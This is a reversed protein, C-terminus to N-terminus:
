LAKIASNRARCLVENRNFLLHLKGCIKQLPRSFNWNTKAMRETTATRKTQKTESDAYSGVKGHWARAFARLRQAVDCAFDSVV